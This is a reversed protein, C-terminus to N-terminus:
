QLTIWFVPLSLISSGWCDCNLDYWLWADILSPYQLLFSWHQPLKVSIKWLHHEGTAEQPQIQIRNGLNWCKRWFRWVWHTNYCLIVTLKFLSKRANFSLLCERERGMEYEKDREKIMLKRSSVKQKYNLVVLIGRNPRTQNPKIWRCRERGSEREKNREGVMTGRWVTHRCTDHTAITMEAASWCPLQGVLWYWLGSQPAVVGRIFSSRDSQLPLSHPLSPPCPLSIHHHHTFPFVFRFGDLSLTFTSLSLSIFLHLQSSPTLPLLLSPPFLTEGCVRNWVLCSKWCKALSCSLTMVSSSLFLSYHHFHGWQNKVEAGNVGMMQKYGDSSM